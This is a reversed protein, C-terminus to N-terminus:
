TKAGEVASTIENVLSQLDEESKIVLPISSLAQLAAIEKSWVEKPQKLGPTM